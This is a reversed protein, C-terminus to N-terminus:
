QPKRTVSTLFSVDGSEETAEDMIECDVRASSTGSGMCVAAFHNLRSCLNCKKRSSSM